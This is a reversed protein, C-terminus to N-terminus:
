AEDSSGIYNLFARNVAKAYTKGIPILTGSLTTFFQANMMSVQKFNIIFGRHCRCFNLKPLSSEMGSIGSNIEYIGQKAVLNVSKLTSEFFEIDDYPVKHTMGRSKFVFYRNEFRRKLDVLLATALAQTNIPKLLYQLAQVEYGTYVYQGSVTTFIIAVYNNTLRIARATDIGNIEKMFIDLFILDFGAPEENICNLLAEGSFFVEIDFAVGTNHLIGSVQHRLAVVFNEEDDCIAIKYLM